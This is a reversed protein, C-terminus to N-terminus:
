DEDQFIRVNAEGKEDVWARFMGGCNFAWTVNGQSIEKGERGHEDIYSKFEIGIIGGEGEFTGRRWRDGASQQLLGGPGAVLKLALPLSLTTPTPPALGSLVQSRSPPPFHILPPLSLASATRCASLRLFTDGNGTGSLAIAHTNANSSSRGKELSRNSSSTRHRVPDPTLPSYGTLGPLCSRLPLIEGLSQITPSLWQWQSGLRLPESLANDTPKRLLGEEAWFGAGFTPTDGIRGPLKNTLGGTSTAVCLIGQNDLVVCGVTGQPLYEEGDWGPEEAREADDEFLEAWETGQHEEVGSNRRRRKQKLGRKHEEWRKRTWFYREQVM